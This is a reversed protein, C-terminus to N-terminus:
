TEVQENKDLCEDQASSTVTSKISRSIPMEYVGLISHKLSEQNESNEQACRTRTKGHRASATAFQRNL